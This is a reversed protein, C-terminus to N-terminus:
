NLVFETILLDRVMGDGVVLQVRRLMQGRLRVISSPAEITQPELARLYGNLVDAIRPKLFAVDQEYSSVVELQMTVLLHKAESTPGLSVVLTELPVFAIDTGVFPSTKSDVEAHDDGKPPLLIGLYLLAFVAGGAVLSVIVGLVLPRRSRGTPETIEAKADAM